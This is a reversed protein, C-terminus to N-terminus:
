EKPIKDLVYNIREWAGKGVHAKLCDPCLWVEKESGDSRIKHSLWIDETSKKCKDCCNLEKSGKM